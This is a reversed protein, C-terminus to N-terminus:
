LIYGGIDCAPGTYGHPCLCQYGRTTNICTAGTVCRVRGCLSAEADICVYLLMEKTVNFNNSCFHRSHHDKLDIIM